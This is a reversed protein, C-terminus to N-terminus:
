HHPGADQEPTRVAAPRGHHTRANAPAPNAPDPRWSEPHGPEPGRRRRAAETARARPMPAPEQAPDSGLEGSASLAAGMEARRLTARGRSSVERPPKLTATEVASPARGARRRLIPDRRSLAGSAM